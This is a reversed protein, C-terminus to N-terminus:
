SIGKKMKLKISKVKKGRTKNLKALSKNIKNVTEFFWV